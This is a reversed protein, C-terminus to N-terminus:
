NRLEIRVKFHVIRFNMNKIRLIWTNFRDIYRQKDTNKEKVM